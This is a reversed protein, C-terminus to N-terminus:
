TQSSTYILNQMCHAGIHPNEDLGTKLFVNSQSYNTSYDIFYFCSCVRVILLYVWCKFGGTAHPKKDPPCPQPIPTTTHYTRLPLGYLGAVARRLQSAVEVMFGQILQILKDTYSIQAETEEGMFCLYCCWRCWHNNYFNFSYIYVVWFLSCGVILVMYLSVVIMKRISILLNNSALIIDKEESKNKYLWYPMAITLGEISLYRGFQIITVGFCM